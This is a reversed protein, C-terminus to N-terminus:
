CIEKPHVLPVPAVVVRNRGESKAQYLAADAIKLVDKVSAGHEPLSAVGVSITVQFSKHQYQIPLEQIEQQLTEARRRTNELSADPMILLFEEGGYRCAIDEGRTNHRLFLGLERLVVDGAEHGHTDNFLKFHDVDLMIVGVPKKHREARRTERDLSGEMYRRNYMGTLADRISDQKLTERLRLNVLSLAYLEAIRTVVMRRSEFVNEEHEQTYHEMEYHGFNIHLIGLTEGSASIPACLYGYISSSCLHLCLPGTEPPEIVHLKGRRLAWCDEIGFAGIEPIIGGWTRIIDLMTHSDEIMALYGSDQPFFQECMNKIVNYTEEESRCAQLLESLRSLLGLERNHRHLAEEAQKQVTIDRLIGMVGVVSGENNKLISASLLGPFLNRDKRINVVERSCQGETLTIHHIALAEHSNAYLVDIPKGRVEELSYGFAEQAAANFEVINRNLDTSIIMDISCAIISRAYHQSERLAAEAQKQETIDRSIGMYGIPNGQENRLISALLLCPFIEGNKRMNVIEQVCQGTSVTRQYIASAEQTEAYLMGIHKGLVEEATYGFTKEAADNFEIINREQDVAIIMDLSSHIISKAYQQSMRLAHETMQRDAIEQQLTANVRAFEETQRISHAQTERLSSAIRQLSVGLPDRSFMELRTEYNGEAIQYAAATIGAQYKKLNWLTLLSFILGTFLLLIGVILSRVFMRQFLITQEQSFLGAQDPNALQFLYFLTLLIFLLLWISCVSYIKTQITM